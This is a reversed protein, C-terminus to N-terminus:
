NTPRACHMVSQRSHEGARGKGRVGAKGSKNLPYMKELALADIKEIAEKPLLSIKGLTVIDESKTGCTASKVYKKIEMILFIINTCLYLIKKIACHFYSSPRCNTLTLHCYTITIKKVVVKIPSLLGGLAGKNTVSGRVIGGKNTVTPYSKHEFVRKFFIMMRIGSVIYNIITISNKYVFQIFIPNLGFIQEYKHM